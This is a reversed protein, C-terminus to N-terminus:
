IINVQVGDLNLQKVQSHTLYIDKLVLNKTELVKYVGLFNRKLIVARDVDCHPCVLGKSSYVMSRGCTSCGFGVPENTPLNVPGEFIHPENYKDM